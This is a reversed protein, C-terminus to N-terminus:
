VGHADLGLDRHRRFLVRLLRTQRGVDVGLQREVFRCDLNVDVFLDMIVYGGSQHGRM